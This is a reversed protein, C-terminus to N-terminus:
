IKKMFIREMVKELQFTKFKSKCFEYKFLHDNLLRLMLDMESEAPDARIMFSQRKSIKLTVIVKGSNFAAFCEALTRVQGTVTWSSIRTLDFDGRLWEWARSVCSQGFSKPLKYGLLVDFRASIDRAFRASANNLTETIELQCRFTM